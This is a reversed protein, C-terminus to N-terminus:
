VWTVVVSGVAKTNYKNVIVIYDNQLHKKNSVVQVASFESVQGYLAPLTGGPLSPAEPISGKWDFLRVM